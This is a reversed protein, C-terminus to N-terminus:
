LYRQFCFIEFFGSEEGLFLNMHCVLIASLSDLKKFITQCFHNVFFKTLFHIYHVSGDGFWRMSRDRVELLNGLVTDIFSKWFLLLERDWTGM